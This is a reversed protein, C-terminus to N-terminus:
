HLTIAASTNVTLSEQTVPDVLLIYASVSAPGPEFPADFASVQTTFTQMGPHGSCEVPVTGFSSTQGDQVVYVLAELVEFGEVACRVRGRLQVSNGADTLQANPFFDLAVAERASVPLALPGALGLAVLVAATLRLRIRTMTSM